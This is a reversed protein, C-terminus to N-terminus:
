LFDRRSVPTIKAMMIHKKNQPNFKLIAIHRIFNMSRVYDVNPMSKVYEIAKEHDSAPIIWFIRGHRLISEAIMENTLPRDTITFDFPARAIFNTPLKRISQPSYEVQIAQDPEYVLFVNILEQAMKGRIYADDASLIYVGAPVKLMKQYYAQDFEKSLSIRAKIRKLWNSFTGM